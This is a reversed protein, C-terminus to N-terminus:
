DTLGTLKTQRRPNTGTLNGAWLIMSVKADQNTPKEFPTSNFNRTRHYYLTLYNTNVLYVVGATANEDWVWPQQKFLLTQFGGDAMKSDTFRQDPQLLGEYAEFEDQDSILLNPHDKGGSSADNFGKRLRAITLVGSVATETAQWWTYTARDVGGYTGASDIAIALGDLAKNGNGTGDAFLDTNMADRLSAEAQAVKGGLLNIIAAEGTNRTEDSGSITITAYYFKWNFEARAMGQQNSTNLLDFGSYSGVAGSLGSMIPVAIVEGGDLPKYAKDKLSWFIANSTTINDVLAKECYKQLTTSMLADFTVAM